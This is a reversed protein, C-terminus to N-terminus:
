ALFEFYILPIFIAVLTGISFLVLKGGMDADQERLQEDIAEIDIVKLKALRGRIKKSVRLSGM